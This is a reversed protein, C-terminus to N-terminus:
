QAALEYMNGDYTKDRTRGFSWKNLDSDVHSTSPTDALQKIVIKNKKAQNFFTTLHLWTM